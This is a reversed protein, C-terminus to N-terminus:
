EEDEGEFYTVVEDRRRGRKAAPRPRRGRRQRSREDEEDEIAAPVPERQISPAAITVLEPEIITIEPPPMIEEVPLEPVIPPEDRELGADSQIVQEVLESIDQPESEEEEEDEQDSISVGDESASPIIDSPQLFGRAVLKEKVEDLSKRGFNRVALLEDDSMALVQGVKTIGARKLCNMARQSLDLEDIPTDYAEPPINSSYLSQRPRPGIARGGLAALLEIHQVLIEASQAIADDPTITNDTWVEIDLRDYDTQHGVRTNDVVYNVRRIPTFIADIPIVGITNVDRVEAPVFGKGKEVTMEISLTADESDLTAIHLEPNVVEVEPPCSVDAGTVRGLGKVELQLRVPYDTFSRLRLQKLNLIIETVDEKIHPLPTFEHYVGDIKIATVAAGPLSSLLVRRMANGLTMGFGRELPEIRYRAYAEASAVREIKPLQIDLL